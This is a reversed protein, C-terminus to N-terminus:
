KNNVIKFDVIMPREQITKVKFLIIKEENNWSSRYSVEYWKTKSHKVKITSLSQKNFDQAMLIPDYDHAAIFEGIKRQMRETM